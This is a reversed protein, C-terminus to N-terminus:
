AFKGHVHVHVIEEGRAFFFLPIHDLHPRGGGEELIAHLAQQSVTHRGDRQDNNDDDGERGDEDGHEPGIGIVLHQPHVRAFGHVGGIIVERGEGVALRLELVDFCPLLDEGMDEAGVGGPTIVEDTHDVARANRQGDAEKGADDDQEDAHGHAGDRAVAASLDVQDDHADHIDDVRQRVHQHDNKQCANQLQGQARGQGAGGQFLDAAVDDAKEDDEAHQVPHGHGAQDAALNEGQTLLLVDQRGLRGTRLSAPDDALM